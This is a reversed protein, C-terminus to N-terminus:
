INTLTKGVSITYIMNIKKDGAIQYTGTVTVSKINIQDGAKVAVKSGPQTEGTVVCETITGNEPILCNQALELATTCSKSATIREINVTPTDQTDTLKLTTKSTLNQNQTNNHLFFGKISKIKLCGTNNIQLHYHTSSMLSNSVVEVSDNSYTVALLAVGDRMGDQYIFKTDFDLFIRDGEHYSTDAKIEFTKRNFALYPSLIVIPSSQWVNTTDSNNIIEDGISLQSGGYIASENNLREAVKDYVDELLKTHRTYYVLSSDFDAQSVRHKKLIYAQYARMAITDGTTNVSQIGEAIHYDYIIDAMKNPQLYKRPIGPKCSIIGLVSM